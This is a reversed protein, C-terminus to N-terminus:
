KEIEANNEKAMSKKMQHRLVLYGAGVAALVGAFGLITQPQYYATLEALLNETNIKDLLFLSLGDNFQNAYFELETIVQEATLEPMHFIEEAIIKCEANEAAERLGPKLSEAIAAGTGVGAGAGLLTATLAGYKSVIFKKLNM